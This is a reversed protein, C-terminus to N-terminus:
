SYFQFLFEHVLKQTLTTKLESTNISTLVMVAPDDQLLENVVTLCQWSDELTHAM